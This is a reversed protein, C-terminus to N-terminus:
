RAQWTKGGDSSYQWTKRNDLSRRMKGTSPSREVIPTAAGGSLKAAIEALKGGKPKGERVVRVDASGPAGIVEIVEGNPGTRINPKAVRSSGGGPRPKPPAVEKYTVTGDLNTTLAGVGTSPTGIAKVTPKDEKKKIPTRGFLALAEDLADDHDWGTSELMDAHNLIQNSRAENKEEETPPVPKRPPTYVPVLKGNADREVLVDGVQFVSKEKNARATAAEAAAQRARNAEIQSQAVQGRRQNDIIGGLMDVDRDQRQNFIQEDQLDLGRANNLGGSFAALMDM